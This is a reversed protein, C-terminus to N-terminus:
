NTNATVWANVTTDNAPAAATAYVQVYRYASNTFCQVCGNGSTIADCVTSTIPVWLVGDPSVRIDADTLAGAGGGGANKLWICVNPYGMIETSAL